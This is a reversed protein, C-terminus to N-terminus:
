SLCRAHKAKGPDILHCHKVAGKIRSFMADVLGALTGTLWEKHLHEEM